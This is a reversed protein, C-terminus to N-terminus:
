STQATGQRSSRGGQSSRYEDAATDNSCCTQYIARMAAVESPALTVNVSPTEVQLGATATSVRRAHLHLPGCCGYRCAHVQVHMSRGMSPGDYKVRRGSHLDRRM